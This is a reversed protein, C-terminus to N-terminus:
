SQASRAEVLGLLLEERPDIPRGRMAEFAANRCAEPDSGPDVLVYGALQGDHENGFGVVALGAAEAAERAKSYETFVM